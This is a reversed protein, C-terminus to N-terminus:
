FLSLYCWFSIWLVRTMISTSILFNTDSLEQVPVHGFISFSTDALLVVLHLLFTGLCLGPPQLPPVLLHDGQGFALELQIGSVAYPGGLLLLLSEQVCFWSYGRFVRGWNVLFLIIPTLPFYYLPKIGLMGYSGGLAVMPVGWHLSWVPIMVWPTM